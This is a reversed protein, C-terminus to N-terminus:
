DGASVPIYVSFTTGVDVTSAVEIRGGLKNIIGYCISLGLGTGKGVAKTTFFPDFIRNLNAAPIGSGTDTVDVVAFGKQARTSLTLKGGKNGMADIANNILNLFVQQLESVSVRVMPLEEELETKVEVMSFKTRQASLAVLDEILYNIQIDQATAATKRAFSLLKHTIDKCRRGQTQIQALARKFEELNKGDQFEKEELLDGIWGAEEVMIAVPNNIEHAVGAALEGISALKGTEVVKQGMLKNEEDAKATRIVIMRSLAFAMLFVAATGLTMIVTAIFFSQDLDAFADEANQQYILLWDGNKLFAGAYIGEQGSSDKKLAIRVDDGGASMNDWLAKALLPNPIDAPMPRAGPSTQLKGERNLIYAIGTRGIRINNVLDSFAVFDITARLIWPPHSASSHVAVIFHPLGRLGLFVDSIVFDIKIATHFWDADGYHAKALKFPGAYAEQNGEANVVGLDVFVSGYEQQLLDLNRQLFSEDKLREHGNRAAMLRIDTLREQLFNDINQQHKQVLERLHDNVKERYSHRFQLYLTSSVVVMPIISVSIITLVINRLLSRYYPTRTLDPPLLKHLIDDFPM